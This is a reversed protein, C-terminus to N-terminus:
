SAVSVTLGGYAHLMSLWVSPLSCLLPPHSSLRCGSRRGADCAGLVPVWVVGAWGGLVEGQCGLLPRINVNHM